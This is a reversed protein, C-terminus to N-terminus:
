ETHMQMKVGFQSGVYSLCVCLSGSTPIDRGGTVEGLQQFRHVAIYTGGLARGDTNQEKGRDDKGAFAPRAFSCFM